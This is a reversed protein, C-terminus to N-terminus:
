SRPCRGAHLDAVCRPQGHDIEHFVRFDRPVVHGCGCPDLVVEPLEHVFADIGHEVQCGDAELILSGLAIGSLELEKRQRNRRGVNIGHEGSCVPRCSKELLVVADIGFVGALYFRQDVLVDALLLSLASVRM